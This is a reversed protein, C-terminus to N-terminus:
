ALGDRWNLSLWNVANWKRHNQRVSAFIKQKSVIPDSRNETSGPLHVLETNWYQKQSYYRSLARLWKEIWYEKTRLLTLWDVFLALSTRITCRYEVTHTYWKQLIPIRISQPFPLTNMNTNSYKKFCGSESYKWSYNMFLKSFINEYIDTLLLIIINVVLKFM